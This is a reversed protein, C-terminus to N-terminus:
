SFMLLDREGHIPNNFATFPSVSNTYVFTSFALIPINQKSHPSSLHKHLIRGWNAAPLSLAALSIGWSSIYYESIDRVALFKIGAL